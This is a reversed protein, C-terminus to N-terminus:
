CLEPGLVHLLIYEVAFTPAVQTESNAVLLPAVDHTAHSM